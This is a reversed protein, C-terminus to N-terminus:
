LNFNCSLYLVPQTDLSKLYLSYRPEPSFCPLGRRSWTKEGKGLYLKYKFVSVRYKRHFKIKLTCVLVGREWLYARWYWWYECIIYLSHVSWNNFLTVLYIVGLAYYAHIYKNYMDSMLFFSVARPSFSLSLVLLLNSGTSEWGNTSRHRLCHLPHPSSPTLTTSWQKDHWPCAHPDHRSKGWTDVHVLESLSSLSQYSNANSVNGQLKRDPLNIHTFIEM